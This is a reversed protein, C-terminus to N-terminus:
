IQLRVVIARCKVNCILAWLEAVFDLNADSDM